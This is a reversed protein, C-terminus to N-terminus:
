ENYCITVPLFPFDIQIYWRKCRKSVLRKVAIRL